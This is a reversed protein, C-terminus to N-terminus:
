ATTLSVKTSRKELRFQIKGERALWGLGMYLASENLKLAKKIAAFTLSDNKELLQYITGATQGIEHIM